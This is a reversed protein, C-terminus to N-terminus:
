LSRGCNRHRVGILLANKYEQHYKPDGQVPKKCVFCNKLDVDM